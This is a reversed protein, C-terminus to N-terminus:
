PSELLRASLPCSALSLSLSLSLYSVGNTMFQQWIFLAVAALDLRQPAPFFASLCLQLLLLEEARRRGPM